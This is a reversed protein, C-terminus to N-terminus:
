SLILEAAPSVNGKKLIVSYTLVYIFLCVHTDTGTYRDNGLVPGSM